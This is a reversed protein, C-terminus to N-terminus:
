YRVSAPSLVVGLKKIDCFALSVSCLGFYVKSAQSGTQRELYNEYNRDEFEHMYISVIILLIVKLCCLFLTQHIRQAKLCWEMCALTRDNGSKNSVMPHLFATHKSPTSM